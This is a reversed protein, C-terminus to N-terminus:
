ALRLPLRVSRSSRALAELSRASGAAKLVTKKRAVFGTALGQRGIWPFSRVRRFRAPGAYESALHDALTEVWGFPLRAGAPLLLLWEGKASVLAEALRDEGCVACGAHEAVRFSGEGMIGGDVVTVERLLGEVAGPVLSSLTAALKAPDDGSQVFASLM